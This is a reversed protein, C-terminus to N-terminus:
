ARGALEVPRAETRQRFRQPRAKPRAVIRQGGRGLNEIVLRVEEDDDVLELLDERGAAVLVIPPREEVAENGGCGTPPGDNDGDDAGVEVTAARLVRREGSQKGLVM